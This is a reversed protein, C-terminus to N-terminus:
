FNISLFNKGSFALNTEVDALQKRLSQIQDFTADGDEVAQRVEDKM